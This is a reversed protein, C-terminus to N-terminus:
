RVTNLKELLKARDEPTASVPKSKKELTKLDTIRDQPKPTTTSSVADLAKLTEEPSLKIDQLEKPIMKKSVVYWVVGGTLALLILVVIAVIRKKQIYSQVVPTNQM